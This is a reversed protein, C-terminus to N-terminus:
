GIQISEYERLAATLEAESVEYLDDWRRLGKIGALVHAPLRAGVTVLPLKAPQTKTPRTDDSAM